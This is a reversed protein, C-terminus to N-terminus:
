QAPGILKFGGANLFHIAISKPVDVRWASHPDRYDALYARFAFAGHSIGQEAGPPIQLTVFDGEPRPLPAPPAPTVPTTVSTDSQPGASPEGAAATTSNRAM